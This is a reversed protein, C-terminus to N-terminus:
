NKDIAAVRKNSYVAWNFIKERKNVHFKKRGSRLRKFQSECVALSIV